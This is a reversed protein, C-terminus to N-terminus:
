YMAMLRKGLTDGHPDSQTSNMARPQLTCLGTTNDDKHLLITTTFHECQTNHEATPVVSNPNCKTFTAGRSEVNYLKKTETVVRQTVWTKKWM